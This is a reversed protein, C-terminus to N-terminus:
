LVGAGISFLRSKRSDVSSNGDYVERLEGAVKVERETRPHAGGIVMSIKPAGCLHHRDNKRHHQKDRWEADNAPQIFELAAYYGYSNKTPSMIVQGARNLEIKFPLDQFKPNDCLEAWSM